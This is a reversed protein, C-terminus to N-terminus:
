VYFSQHAFFPVIDFSALIDTIKSIHNKFIQIFHAYNKFHSQLTEVILQRNKALNETPSGFASFNPRLTINPKYIKPLGYIRPTRSPKEQPITSKIEQSFKLNTILIINKRKLTYLQISFITVIFNTVTNEVTMLRISHFNNIKWSLGKCHSKSCCLIHSKQM